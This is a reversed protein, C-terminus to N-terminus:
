HRQKNERKDAKKMVKECKSNQTYDQQRTPQVGNCKSNEYAANRDSFM